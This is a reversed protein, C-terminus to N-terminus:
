DSSGLLPRRPRSSCRGDSGAFEAAIKLDWLKVALGSNDADYFREIKAFQKTAQFRHLRASRSRSPTIDLGARAM